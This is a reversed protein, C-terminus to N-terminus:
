ERRFRLLRYVYDGSAYMARYTAGSAILDDVQENSLGLDAILSARYRPLRQM